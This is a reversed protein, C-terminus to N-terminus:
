VKQKLTSFLIVKGDERGFAIISADKDIACCSINCGQLKQDDCKQIQVEHQIQITVLLNSGDFESKYVVYLTSAAPFTFLDTPITNGLPCSVSVESSM